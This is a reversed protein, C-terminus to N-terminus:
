IKPHSLFESWTMVTAARTRPDCILDQRLLHASPGVLDDDLVVLDPCKKACLSHCEEGDKTQKVKHGDRSLIKALAESKRALPSCLIILLQHKM